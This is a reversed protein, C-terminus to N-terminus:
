LIGEQRKKSVDFHDNGSQFTNQNHQQEIHLQILELQLLASNLSLRISADRKTAYTLKKEILKVGIGRKEMIYERM